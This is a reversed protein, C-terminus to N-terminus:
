RAFAALAILDIVIANIIALLALVSCGMAGLTEFFGSLRLRTLLRFWSLSVLALGNVIVLHVLIEPEM